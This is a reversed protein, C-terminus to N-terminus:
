QDAREPGHLVQCDQPGKQSQCTLFVLSCDTLVSLASKKLGDIAEDSVIKSRLLLPDREGAERGIVSPIPVLEIDGTALPPTSKPTPMQETSIM